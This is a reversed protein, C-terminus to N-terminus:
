CTDCRGSSDQPWFILETAYTAFGAKRVEVRHRAAPLQLDVPATGLQEGDVLVAAGAPEGEVRVKVLRPALRVTLVTTKDAEAYVRRQASDYGARTISIDHEIGPSLEVTLPTRGRLAGGVLVEAGSPVSRLTLKADAAGLEIPGLSTETGAQVVLSRSGPDCDRRRSGSADYAPQCSSRPRHVAPRRAM